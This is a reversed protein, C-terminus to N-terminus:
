LEKKVDCFGADFTGDRWNKDDLITKDVIAEKFPKLIDSTRNTELFEICGTFIVDITTLGARKEQAIRAMMETAGVNLVNLKIDPFAKEWDKTRGVRNIEGTGVVVTLSGEKKAAAVLEDWTEARASQAAFGLTMGALAVTAGMMGTFKM